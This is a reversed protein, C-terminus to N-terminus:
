LQVSCNRGVVFSEALELRKRLEGALDPRYLLTLDAIVLVVFALARM